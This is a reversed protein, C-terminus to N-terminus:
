FSSANLLPEASTDPDGSFGGAASQATGAAIIAARVTAVDSANVPKVRTALYLAVAGAVHPSAMSTGSLTAYGNNRATSLICVGPAAIDVIAGFNSFDAFTDDVDSRCTAAAGGGGTGNFDAIASVALVDPHNAPSFTAADKASNGAAAVYVVGAAVSRTIADDLAQSACECGLSMNAVEIKAANATVYDIGRIIDSIWGSGNRNLVKVSWIRAGPAMGVVGIGNDKAATTGAVHTGHGNLDDVKPEGAAFSVQAYVNLDPHKSVGTDIIAIDVNVAQDIGNIKATPSLDAEARNIGTPLTQVPAATVKPAFATAVYDPEILDVRPDAKLKELQKDNLHAAFGKFVHGYANRVGVGHKKVVDDVSADGKLRVIYEGPLTEGSSSAIFEAPDTEDAFSAMPICTAVM